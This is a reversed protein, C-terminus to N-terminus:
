ASQGSRAENLGEEILDEYSRNKLNGTAKTVGKVPSQTTGILGAKRKAQIEKAATEKAQEAARKVLADHYYDRFATGFNRIGNKVAHMGVSQLLSQGTEPNVADFDLDAYQERISKIETELAQDEQQIQQARQAEVVSNKFQKIEGLEQKLANLERVVPNAQNQAVRAQYAAQFDDFWQKGEPTQVYQDLAAYREDYQKQRAEFEAQQRNFDGMRQGYDYGQNLWQQVRPDTVPVKLTQGNRTITFEPGAVQAAQGQGQAQAAAPDPQAPTEPAASAPPADAPAAHEDMLSFTGYDTSVEPTDPASPLETSFGELSM